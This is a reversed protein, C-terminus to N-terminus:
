MRGTKGWVLEDGTQTTEFLFGSDDLFSNQLIEDILEPDADMDSIIQGGIITAAEEVHGRSPLDALNAESPVREMWCVLNDDELRMHFMQAMVLMPTSSSVTKILCLRSADNDVWFIARRNQCRSGIYVRALLVAYLEAECIIQSGVQSIWHSTLRSAINGGAVIKTGNSRDIIVCGWGANTGDWSADTFVLVPSACATLDIFRPKVRDLNIALWECLKQYSERTRPYRGSSMTSFARAALRLTAGLTLGVSYQLLGALVQMDRRKPPYGNAAARIMTKIRGLRGEKNSVVLNGQSLPQLDVTAGLVNFASSFPLGKTGTTAHTWGLLTLFRSVLKDMLESSAGTELQPFDDYFVTLIGGLVKQVLFRISASIRNFAYVRSGAGFPLSQSVFYNAEGSPKHVLAVSCFLSCSSVPVQRYAKELDLCKGKWALTGNFDPSLKGSLPTGDRLKM